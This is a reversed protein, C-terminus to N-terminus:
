EREALIADAIDNSFREPFFLDLSPIREEFVTLPIVRSLCQGLDRLYDALIGNVTWRNVLLTLSSILAHKPQIEAVKM